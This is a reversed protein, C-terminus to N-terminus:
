RKKNHTETVFYHSYMDLYAAMTIAYSYPMTIILSAQNQFLVNQPLSQHLGDHFEGFSNCLPCEGITKMFDSQNSLLPVSIKGFKINLLASKNLQKGVDNGGELWLHPKGTKNYPQNNKNPNPSTSLKNYLFAMSSTIFNFQTGDKFEGGMIESDTGGAVTSAAIREVSIPTAMAILLVAWSTAQARM